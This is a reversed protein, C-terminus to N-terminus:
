PLSGHCVERIPMHDALLILSPHEQSPNICKGPSHEPTITHELPCCIHSQVSFSFARTLQSFAYASIDPRGGPQESVPGRVPTRLHRTLTDRAPPSSPSPHHPSIISRSAIYELSFFSVGLCYTVDSSCIVISQAPSKGLAWAVSICIHHEQSAHPGRSILSTQPTECWAYGRCYEVATTM